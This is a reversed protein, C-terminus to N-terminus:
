SEWSVPCFRTARDLPLSGRLLECRTNWTLTVVLQVRRRVRRNASQFRMRDIEKAERLHCESTLYVRMGILIDGFRQDANPLNHIRSQAISEEM